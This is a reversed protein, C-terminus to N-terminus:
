YAWTNSIHYIPGTTPAPLVIYAISTTAGFPYGTVAVGYDSKNSIGSVIGGVPGDSAPSITYTYRTPKDNVVVLAPTPITYTSTATGIDNPTWTHTPNATLLAHGTKLKSAVTYDWDTDSIAAGDPTTLDAALVNEVTQNILLAYSRYAVPLNADETITITVTESGTTAPLCATYPSAGSWTYNVNTVSGAIIATPEDIVEVTLSVATGACTNFTEEAEITWTGAEDFSLEVYNNNLNTETATGTTPATYTWAFTTNVNATLSVAADFLPSLNADPVVFYPLNQNITVYDTTASSVFDTNDTALQAFAGTLVFAMVLTLAFKLFNTKKM